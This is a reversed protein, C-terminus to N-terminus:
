GEKLEHKSWRDKPIEMAYAMEKYSSYVQGNSTVEVKDGVEFKGNLSGYIRKNNRYDDTYSYVDNEDIKIEMKKIIVNIFLM